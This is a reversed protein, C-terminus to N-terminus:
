RRGSSEPPESLGLSCLRHVFHHHARTGEKRDSRNSPIRFTSFLTLGNVGVYYSCLINGHDTSKRASRRGQFEHDTALVGTILM